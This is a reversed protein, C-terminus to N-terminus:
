KNVCANLLRKVLSGIHVSCQGAAKPPKWVQSHKATDRVEARWIGIDCTWGLQSLWFIDASVILHGRSYFVERQFGSSWSPSSQGKFFRKCQNLLGFCVHLTKQQKHSKLPIPNEYKLSLNIHQLFKKKMQFTLPQIEVKLQRKSCTHYIQYMTLLKTFAVTYGV